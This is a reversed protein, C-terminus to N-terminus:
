WGRGGGYNNNDYYAGQGYQQQYYGRGKRDYRHWQGRQDYFGDRYYYVQGYTRYEQRGDYYGQQLCANSNKASSRGIQSGIVAGAVAGVASGESRAGRGSFQSGLVAGFLGGIVAGGTSGQRKQVQCPSRNGNDYSSGGYGGGGYPQASAFMPAALAGVAVTAALIATSTRKM